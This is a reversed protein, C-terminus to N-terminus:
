QKKFNVLGIYFPDGIQRYSFVYTIKRTGSVDIDYSEPLSQSTIEPSKYLLQDNEDIIIGVFSLILFVACRTM